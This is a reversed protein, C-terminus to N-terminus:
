SAAEAAKEAVDGALWDLIWRGLHLARRGPRTYRLHGDRRARILTASPLDLLLVLASDDYWAQPDIIVPKVM